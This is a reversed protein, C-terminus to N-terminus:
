YRGGLDQYIELVALKEGKSKGYPKIYFSGLNAPIFIPEAYHMVFPEFADNPSEIVAEEGEVLIVAKVKEKTDFAVAKEFWYREVRLPEYEMLGSHEKTWGDGRDIEQRKSILHDRTFSTNHGEQLVKAGHGIDIPRPKGDFDVRGWDWLKFTSVWFVNIELVLTNAGSCHVTGSPIYIHDHKKMPWNNVWKTEDFEGTEQAEKLANIFDPIKVGDKTGLYVSSTDTTDLMYYSEYHGYPWNFTEQNYAATPHCQLSLNGGGWTDLIDIMLPLKYGWTYFAQGGLFELPKSFYINKGPMMFMTDGIKAQVAQFELIGIMGWATNPLDEGVGLKDRLWHGGWIGPQFFPVAQFPQSVFGQIVKQFDERNLMVPKDAINCDMIFDLQDLLPRKHWDQVRSEMFMFRKEKKLFEEDYNKAGWNDLGKRYRRKIEEMEIDCYVLMDGHYVADAGVGYVVTLGTAKEIEKHATEVLAPDFFEEMKCTSSVGNCRDETIFHKFKEYIVAEPYKIKDTDVLLQAGLASIINEFLFKEDVGHYYDFVLTHVGHSQIHRKLERVIDQVESYATANKITIYPNKNFNPENSM